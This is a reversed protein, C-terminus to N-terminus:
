KQRYGFSRNSDPSGLVVVAKPLQVNETCAMQWELRVLTLEVKPERELLDAKWESFNM